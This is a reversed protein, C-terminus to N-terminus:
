ANANTTWPKLYFGAATFAAMFLTMVFLLPAISAAGRRRLSRLLLTTFAVTLMFVPLMLLKIIADPHIGETLAAAAVILDGTVHATFLGYLALVGATDVFGAVFSLATVGFFENGMVAASHRATIAADIMTRTVVQKSKKQPVNRRPNAKGM